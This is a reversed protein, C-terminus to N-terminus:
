HSHEYHHALIDVGFDNDPDRWVSHIHNADNQTNDYEVLFRPGRLRYYHPQHRETPGAWVFNMEALAGPGGDGGKLRRMEIEALEDPMRHIYEGVLTLMIERQADNMEAYAIGKPEASYRVAELHESTVGLTEIMLEMTKYQSVVNPPDMIEATERPLMNELVRPRNLSVIDPPAMHTVVAKARQEDSFADVLERGLDEAAGLPRLWSTQGLPAEAPNSGFFTPTPSVIQGGVITYNVSVHHGEFRWGWAKQGDPTGFITVHYLKSDRWWDPTTWGEKADLATEIGMITSALVYGSRSVGTTILKQALRQQERDMETFPLGMRKTPTYHWNTREAYDDFPVVTKARQDTSLAALFNSTAEGMRQVLEQAGSGTFLNQISM